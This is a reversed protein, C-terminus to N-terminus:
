EAGVEKSLWKIRVDKLVVSFFMSSFESSIRYIM